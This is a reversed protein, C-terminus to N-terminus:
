KESENEGYEEDLRKQIRNGTIRLIAAACFGIIISFSMVVIGVYFIVESSNM